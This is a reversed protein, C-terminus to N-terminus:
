YNEFYTPGTNSNGSNRSLLTKELSERFIKVTFFNKETKLVTTCYRYLEVLSGKEFLSM